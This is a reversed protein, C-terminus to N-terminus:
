LGSSYRPIEVEQINLNHIARVLKTYVFPQFEARYTDHSRSVNRRDVFYPGDCLVAELSTIGRFGITTFQQYSKQVVGEDAYVHVHASIDVKGIAADSDDDMFIGIDAAVHHDALADGNAACGACRSTSGRM